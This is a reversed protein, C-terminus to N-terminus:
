SLLLQIIDLLIETCWDQKNALMNKIIVHSKEIIKYQALENFQLEKSEIISKMINMTHRNLRPHNVQYNDAIFFFLDFRRM